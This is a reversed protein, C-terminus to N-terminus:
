TLLTAGRRVLEREGVETLDRRHLTLFPNEHRQANTRKLVFWDRDVAVVYGRIPTFEVGPFQALNWQVFSGVQM